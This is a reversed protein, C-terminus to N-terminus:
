IGKHRQLSYSCVKCHEGGPSSLTQGLEREALLFLGPNWRVTALESLTRGSVPFLFGSGPSGTSCLLGSYYMQAYNASQAESLLVPCSPLPWRCRGNLPRGPRGWSTPTASTVRPFSTATCTSITAVSTPGESPPPPSETAVHTIHFPAPGESPWRLSQLHGPSPATSLSNTACLSGHREQLTARVPM